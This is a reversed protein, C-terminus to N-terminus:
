EFKTGCEPCFKPTTGAEPTYGCGSCVLPKEEEAPKAAGCETCFKGSNITNCSTCGWEGEALGSFKIVREYTNAGNADTANAEATDAVAGTEDYTITYLLYERNENTGLVQTGDANIDPAYRFICPIILNGDIDIVGWLDDQQVAMVRQTACRIATVDDYTEALQGQTATIVIYKGMNQVAIMPANYDFGKYNSSSLKYEVSTLVNGQEDLYMLGGDTTVVAQYGLAFFTGDTTGAIEAYKPPIVENGQMDVLGRMGNARVVLYDGGYYSVYDYEKGDAFTGENVLNGQLDIFNGDDTYWIKQNVDEPQLTCSATFALAQTPNHQVGKKYNDTFETSVFDDAAVDVRNFNSDLWIGARTSTRIYLYKGKVGCTSSQYDERSLSGIIQKDYVVDVRSINYQNGDSDKYDGNVDTTAELKVGLLWNDDVFVIDGYVMPLVTAGTCDIVGTTNLGSENVVEYYLGNQRSTLRGFPGAIVNGQLDYVTRNMYYTDGYRPLNATGDLVVPADTSAMAIASIPVMLFTIMVLLLVLLKKM